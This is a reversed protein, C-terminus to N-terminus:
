DPLEKCQLGHSGLLTIVHDPQLNDGIIRLVNDVDQRDLNWRHVGPSANLIEALRNLDSDSTVNTSFVFVNSLSQQKM